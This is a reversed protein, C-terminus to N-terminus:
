ISLEFRKEKELKIREEEKHSSLRLDIYIYLDIYQIHTINRFYTFLCIMCFLLYM